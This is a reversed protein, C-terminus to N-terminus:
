ELSRRCVPDGHEIRRAAISSLASGSQWSCHSALCSPYLRDRTFGNWYGDNTAVQGDPLIPLTQIPAEGNAQAFTIMGSEGATPAIWGLVISVHGFEGGNWAMIDGPSIPLEGRAPLQEQYGLSAAYADCVIRFTQDM